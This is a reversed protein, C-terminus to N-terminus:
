PTSPSADEGAGSASLEVARLFAAIEHQRRAGWGPTARANLLREEHEALRASFRAPDRAVDLNKLEPGRSGGVGRLRHCGLCASTVEEAGLRAEESAGFPVRLARGYSANFSRMEIRDVEKLWWGAMRPDTEIGPQELNPWALELPSAEAPHDGRYALVPKTQRLTAISVAAVLGGEGHFVALDTGKELSVHDGLFPVVAIGEFREERGSSPSIASFSRHPLQPLDDRGFRYPGEEVAGDV